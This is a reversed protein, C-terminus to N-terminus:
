KTGPVDWLQTGYIDQPRGWKSSKFIKKGTFFPFLNTFCPSNCRVFMKKM